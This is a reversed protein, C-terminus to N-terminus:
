QLPHMEDQSIYVKVKKTESRRDMPIYYVAIKSIDIVYTIHFDMIPVM